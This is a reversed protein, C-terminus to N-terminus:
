NNLLYYATIIRCENKKRTEQIYVVELTKDDLTKRAVIRGGFSVRSADPNRITKKLHDINIGREIVAQQFHVSFSLKM